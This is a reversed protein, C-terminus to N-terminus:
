TKDDKDEVLLNPQIPFMLDRNNGSGGPKGDAGYSWIDPSLEGEPSEYLHYQYNYGWPDSPIFAIYGGVKYETITIEAEKNKLTYLGEEVTPYRGTDL